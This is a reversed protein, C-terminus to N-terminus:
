VFLTNRNIYFVLFIISIGLIKPKKACICHWIWTWIWMCSLIRDNMNPIHSVPLASVINDIDFNTYLIYGMQFLFHTVLRFFPQWGVKCCPKFAAILLNTHCKQRDSVWNIILLKLINNSSKFRAAKRDM